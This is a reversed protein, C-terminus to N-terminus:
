EHFARNGEASKLNGEPQHDRPVCGARDYKEALLELYKEDKM